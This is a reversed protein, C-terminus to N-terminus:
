NGARQSPQLCLRPRVQEQVGARGQHGLGGPQGDQDDDEKGVDGDERNISLVANKRRNKDRKFDARLDCTQTESNM